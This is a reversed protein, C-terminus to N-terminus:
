FSRKWIFICPALIERSARDVVTHVAGGLLCMYKSGTFTLKNWPLTQARTAVSIIHDEQKGQTSQLEMPM